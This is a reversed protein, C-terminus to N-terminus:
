GKAPQYAMRVAFKTGIGPTSDVSISGNHEELLKRTVMM